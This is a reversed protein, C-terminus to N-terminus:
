IRVITSNALPLHKWDDQGILCQVRDYDSYLLDQFGIVTFLQNLYFDQWQLRPRVLELVSNEKLTRRAEAVKQWSPMTEMRTTVAAEAIIRKQLWKATAVTVNKGVEKERKRKGEAAA